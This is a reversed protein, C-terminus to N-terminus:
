NATATPTRRLAELVEEALESGDGPRLPTASIRLVIGDDDIEELSVNPPYRTPVGIASVLREEVQKPSADPDFRVRVDVRDPERLPVV